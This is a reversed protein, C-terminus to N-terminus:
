ETYKKLFRSLSFYFNLYKLDFDLSDQWFPTNSRRSFVRENMSFYKKCANNRQEWMCKMTNPCIALQKCDNRFLNPFESLRTCLYIEIFSYFINWINECIKTYKDMQSKCISVIIFNIKNILVIKVSHYAIILIYLGCLGKVNDNTSINFKSKCEINATTGIRFEIPVIRFESYFHTKSIYHFIMTLIFVCHVLKLQIRNMMANTKNHDILILYIKNVTSLQKSEFHM